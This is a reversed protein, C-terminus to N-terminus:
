EPYGSPERSFLWGFVFGLVVMLIGTGCCFVCVAISAMLMVLSEGPDGTFNQGVELFTTLGLLVGLFIGLEFLAWGLRRFKVPFGKPGFASGVLAAQTATRFVARWITM